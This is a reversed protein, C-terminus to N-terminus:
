VNRQEGTWCTTQYPCYGCPFKFQTFGEPRLPLTGAKALADAKCLQALDHAAMEENYDVYWAVAAPEAKKAGAVIYVLRGRREHKGHLYLNLQHVHHENPENRRLMFKIADSNTSKLEWTERGSDVLVSGFDRRGTIKIGHTEIEIREERILTAGQEAELVKAVADEFAHGVIFRMKSDIDPPDSEPENMLSYVVQRECKGADSISPNNKLLSGREAIRKAQNIVDLKAIGAAFARMVGATAEPLPNAKITTALHERTM